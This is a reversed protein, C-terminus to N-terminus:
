DGASEGIPRRLPVIVMALLIRAVATVVRPPTLSTQGGFRSRDEIPHELTQLGAWKLLLLLEPEPYGTPHHDALLRIARRGFACLGCTPDTIRRGTQASLVWALLARFLSKLDRQRSAGTYRSGLVADARGAMVLHLLKGADAARHQGDGDIRVVSSYGTRFAYRLGAKMASGVGLRERLRISEVGLAAVVAPTEDTSGDDVVVIDLAPCQEQIEAVVAPLSAAENHVPILCLSRPPDLLAVRHMGASDVPTEAARRAGPM